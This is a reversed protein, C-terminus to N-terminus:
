YWNLLFKIGIHMEICDLMQIILCDKGVPKTDISVLRMSCNIYQFPKRAKTQTNLM